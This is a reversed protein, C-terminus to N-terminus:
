PASEWATTFLDPPGFNGSKLLLALPHPLAAGTAVTWPVGPAALRGVVLRQVGLAAAVAGSTEGGAVVLHRALDREVVHRAVAALAAEVRAAAGEVGLAAQAARVGGPDTTASVLVPGGSALAERARRCLAELAAAEGVSRPDVQVVLGPFAAVQERTRASTSGSLVLRGSLPVAPVPRDLGGGERRAIATALGAAGALVLPRGAPLAGEVAAALADLDEEGVADVLIHAAGSAAHEELARLVADPGRRVVPEPVLAVPNPTQRGLLRVLDSDRMPTLPHDRLPSEALLRDGVFLHGLYQTRGAGPTAPTGVTMATAAARGAAAALADGIPGINGRDTSDFTSCYKQYLRVPGGTALWRAARGAQEVALGVPATRVKLAVVSCAAAPVTGDEPVGLLVEAPMGAEAVWGALDCAGTVDDAVVGLRPVSRGADGAPSGSSGSM